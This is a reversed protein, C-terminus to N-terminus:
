SINNMLNLRSKKGLKTIMLFIIVGGSLIWAFLSANILNWILVLLISIVVRQDENELSYGIFKFLLSMIYPYFIIGFVKFNGYADGFMGNNANAESNGSFLAGIIYTSSGSYPSDWFHRLISERLLLPERTSFFTYFNYNIEAPISFIRHYLAALTIKDSCFYMLLGMFGFISVGIALANTYRSIKSEDKYVLFVFLIMPYIALWTKLGNISFLMLGASFTLIANVKKKHRLFMAFCFPLFVNGVWIMLYRIISPIYIQRLSLRYESVEALSTILRFKGLFGWLIFSILFATLFIINVYRIDTEKNSVKISKQKFELRQLRVFSFLMIVWYLIMLAFAINNIEKLGYLSITPITSFMFISKIIFAMLDEKFSYVVIVLLLIFIIWNIIYKYIDFSLISQMYEFQKTTFFIYVCDYVVKFLVFIISEFLKKM